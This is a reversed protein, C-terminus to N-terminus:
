LGFTTPEFGVGAVMLISSNAQALLSLSELGYEAWLFRGSEDPQLKIEDGVIERLAVRSREPDKGLTEELRDVLVRCREAVRPAILSEINANAAQHASARQFRALQTEADSLRQALAPSSKLLGGAV